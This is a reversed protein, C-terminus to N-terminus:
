KKPAAPKTPVVSPAPLDVELIKFRNAMDQCIPANTTEDTLLGGCSFNYAHGNVITAWTTMEVSGSVARIKATERNNWQVQDINTPLIGEAPLSRLALLVYASLTGSFKEVDLSATTRTATNKVVLQITAISPPPATKTWDAPVAIEWTKDPATITTDAPPLPSTSADVESPEASDSAPPAPSASGSTAPPPPPVPSPTINSNEGGCGACLALVLAIISHRM